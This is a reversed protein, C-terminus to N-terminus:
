QIDKLNHKFSLTPITNSSLNAQIIHQQGWPGTLIIAIWDILFGWGLNTMQFDTRVSIVSEQGCSRKGPNKKITENM